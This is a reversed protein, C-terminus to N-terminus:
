GFTAAGTSGTGNAPPIPAEPANGEEQISIFANGSSEWSRDAFVREPRTRIADVLWSRLERQSPHDLWAEADSRISGFVATLDSWAIGSGALCGHGDPQVAGVSICRDVRLCWLRPQDPDRNPTVRFLLGGAAKLYLGWAHRPQFEVLAFQPVASINSLQSDSLAHKVTIRQDDVQAREHNDLSVLRLRAVNVRANASERRCV